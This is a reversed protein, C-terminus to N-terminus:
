YNLSSCNYFMESIYKIKFAKFKTLNLTNISSFLISSINEGNSADINTLNISKLLNCGM